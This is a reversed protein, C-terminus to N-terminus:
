QLNLLLTRLALLAGNEEIPPIELVPNVGLPTFGVYENHSGMLLGMGVTSLMGIDNSGDGIAMVESPVINYLEKLIAALAVGKDAQRSGIALLHKYCPLLTIKDKLAKFEFMVTEVGAPVYLLIQWLSQGKASLVNKHLPIVTEVLHATRCFERTHETIKYVCMEDHFIHGNSCYFHPEVKDERYLREVISFIKDYVFYPIEEKLYTATIDLTLAGNYVIMPTNLGLREYYPRTSRQTRGTALIVKIGEHRLGAIVEVMGPTLQYDKGLITGDLDLAVARIPPYHEKLRQQMDELSQVVNAKRRRQCEAVARDMASAFVNMNMM